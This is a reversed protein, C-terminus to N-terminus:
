ISNFYDIFSLANNSFLLNRSQAPKLVKEKVNVDIETIDMDLDIFSTELASSGIDM